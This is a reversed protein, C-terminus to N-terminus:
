FCQSYCCRGLLPPETTLDPKTSRNLNMTQQYNLEEIEGGEPLQPVNHSIKFVKEWRVRFTVM